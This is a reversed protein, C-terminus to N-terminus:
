RTPPEQGSTRRLARGLRGAMHSLQRRLPRDSPARGLQALEHAVFVEFRRVQRLYRAFQKPYWQAADFAGYEKTLTNFMTRIRGAASQVLAEEAHETAIRVLEHSRAIVQRLETQLLPDNQLQFEALRVRAQATLLLAADQLLARELSLRPPPKSGKPALRSATPRASLDEVFLRQDGYSTVQKIVANELSDPSFDTLVRTLSRWPQTLSLPFRSFRYRAHPGPLKRYAVLTVGYAPNAQFFGLARDFVDLPMTSLSRWSAWPYLQYGGAGLIRAVADACNFDRRNWGVAGDRFEEEIRRAEALMASGAVPAIGAIRLGITDRGYAMGYTSTHQQCGAPPTVGFLYDGLSLHQLLPTGTARDALHNASYVTPGVRLALHGFPNERVIREPETSSSYSLLLEIEAPAERELQALAAEVGAAPVGHETGFDPPTQRPPRADELAFRAILGIRSNSRFETQAALMAERRPQDALLHLARSGAQAATPALEALGLRHFLEANEREHGRVVDLLLTPLGIAFAEAPTLGGAKTILLDASRMLAIVEPQPVLGCPRLSVRPAWHPAHRVLTDRLRINAGCLAVVQVPSTAQAALSALLGAYDGAGEKGGALLITPRAPDLGLAALTTQRVQPPAPPLNVPMGSTTILDTPVGAALWRTTLEPHALFTQDIRKSIRPFFGEFFDTHLWGIRVDQLHGRERLTGLVQASGYHTALATHPAEDRLFALVRDEPYDNPLSALSATRNGREQMSQFLNEFCTPLHNAVFWYLREDIRRRVPSMFARIDQLRVVAHPNQRTIERAITHAASIHGHGISSYFIVIRVPKPEARGAVPPTPTGPPHAAPPM